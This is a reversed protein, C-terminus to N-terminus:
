DPPGDHHPEHYARHCYTRLVLRFRRHWAGKRLHRHLEHGPRVRIRCLHLKCIASRRAHSLLPRAFTPRLNEKRPAKGQADARAYARYHLPSHFDCFRNHRRVSRLSVDRDYPRHCLGLQRQDRFLRHRRRPSKRALIPLLGVIKYGVFCLSFAFFTWFYLPKRSFTDVLFGAFPRCALAGITYLSIIFGATANDTQFKDLIFLPLIPLLQYFSFFLLFNAAAVTIFTRSWLTNNTTDNRLEM